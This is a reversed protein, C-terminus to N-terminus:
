KDVVATISNVNQVSLSKQIIKSQLFKNLLLSVFKKSVLLFSRYGLLHVTEMPLARLSFTTRKSTRPGKESAKIHLYQIEAMSSM